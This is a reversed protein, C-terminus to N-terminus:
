PPRRASRPCTFGCVHLHIEGALRQGVLGHLLDDPEDVFSEGGPTFTYTVPPEASIASWCIALSRLMWIMSITVNTTIM